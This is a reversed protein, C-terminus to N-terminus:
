MNTSLTLEKKDKLVPKLHGEMDDSAVIYLHTKLEDATYNGHIQPTLITRASLKNQPPVVSSVALLLNLSIIKKM